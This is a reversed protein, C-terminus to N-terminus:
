PSPCAAMSEVPEFIRHLRRLFAQIAPNVTIRMLEHITGNGHRPEVTFFQLLEARQAIEQQQATECEGSRVSKDSPPLVNRQEVLTLRLDLLQLMLPRIELIADRQEIGAVDIRVHGALQDAVIEVDNMRVFVDVLKVILLADAM